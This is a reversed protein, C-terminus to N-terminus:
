WDRRDRNVNRRYKTHRKALKRREKYSLRGDNTYYRNRSNYLRERQRQLRRAEQPTIRRNRNNRWGRNQGEWYGGRQQYGKERGSQANGTAVFLGFCFAIAFIALSFKRLFNMYGGNSM